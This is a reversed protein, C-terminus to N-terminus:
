VKPHKHTTCLGRKTHAAYVNRKLRSVYLEIRRVRVKILHPSGRREMTKRRAQRIARLVPRATFKDLSLLHKQLGEKM